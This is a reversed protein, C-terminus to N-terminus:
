DRMGVALRTGRVAHLKLKGDYSDVARSVDEIMGYDHWVIIGGPALHKLANETDSMVYKYHHNGDIFVLDFPGKLLGWDLGASDGYVQTIKTALAHSEPHERYHAGVTKRDTVNVYLGPVEIKYNGDWNEPLDITTIKADPSTNVAMNLTTNGNFTGIELINKCDRLKVIGCLVMLEQTDISTTIDRDFSRHVTISVNELGKFIEPAPVRKLKGYSWSGIRYAEADKPVIGFPFLRRWVLKLAIIPSGLARGLNKWITRKYSTEM